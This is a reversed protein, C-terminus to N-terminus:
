TDSRGVIKLKKLKAQTVSSGSDDGFVEEAFEGLREPHAYHKMLVSVDKWNGVKATSVPNREQRTIAETAFSHRGGEYPLVCKIGARKCAAKWPKLPGKIDAWGFVRFEGEFKGWGIQRPPLARLVDVMESTLYFERGGGNKTRDIWARKRDLELDGPTLRIAENPRAATTFMFLAYAALRPLGADNASKMFADIWPRDIAVRVKKDKEAFGKIRIPPCLGHEHAFNIVARVPKIVQRNWTQPKAEPYIQPGLAKIAGPTIKALNLNGIKKIIPELYHREPVEPNIKPNLYLVCAEAFTSEQEAGYLAARERRTQEKLGRLRAIEPDRTELSERVRKGNFTGSLYFIGNNRQIVKLM